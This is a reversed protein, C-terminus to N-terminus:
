LEPTEDELVDDDIIDKELNNNQLPRNNTAINDIINKIQKNSSSEKTDSININKITRENDKKILPLMIEDLTPQKLNEYLKVPIYKEYPLFHVKQFFTPKIKKYLGLEVARSMFSDYMEDNIFMDRTVPKICKIDCKKIAMLAVEKQTKGQFVLSKNDDKDQMFESDFSNNHDFLPHCKLLNGTNNNMYFGWNLMHRDRNAILYDVVCMKYISDSDIKLAYNMFDIDKKNCYMLVDEAPVICYDDTSMNKCASVFHGESTEAFYKVHEINFCDLINSTMVEIESEIGKKSSKKYLYVSDDKRVWAKAYAGQGTLEPTHPIGSITLSKGHLAIHAVIQNLHNERLNINEWKLSLNDDNLWYDDIMSTAKCTIAIKTKTIPDDSQSLEYANLLNKANERDINLVRRSLYSTIAYFNHNNIKTRENENMNVFKQKFTDKLSIPLLDENLVQYIGEDINFKLVPIDKLMLYM